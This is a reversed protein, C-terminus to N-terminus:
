LSHPQDPCSNDIRPNVQLHSKKTRQEIFQHLALIGKPPKGGETDSQFDEARQHLNMVSDISHKANAIEEENVQTIQPDFMANHETSTGNNQGHKTSYRYQHERINVIVVMLEIEFREHEVGAPGCEM